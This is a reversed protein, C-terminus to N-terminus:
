YLFLVMWEIFEVFFIFQLYLDVTKFWQNTYFVYDFNILDCYLNFEVRNQTAGNQEAEM